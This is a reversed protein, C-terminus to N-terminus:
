YNTSVIVIENNKEILKLNYYFGENTNKFKKKM